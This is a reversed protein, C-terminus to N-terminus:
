VRLYVDLGRGRNQFGSEDIWSSTIGGGSPIIPMELTISVFYFKM